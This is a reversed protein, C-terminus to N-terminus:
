RIVVRRSEDSSVAIYHGRSLPILTTGGPATGSWVCTGDILYIDLPMTESPNEVVLCCGDASPRANWMGTADPIDLSAQMPIIEIDDLAVRAGDTKTFRLMVNGDLNLTATTPTWVTQPAVTACDTWSAGDDLSYAMVVHAPENDWLRTHFTVSAIGGGLPSHMSATGGEASNFRVGQRGTRVERTDDFVGADNFDWRAADGEIDAGSYGFNVDKEFSEVIADIGKVVGEASLDDNFCDSATATVSTRYVGATAGNLRLYIQGDDEGLTIARSWETKDRSVEFPATVSVNIDSDVNYADIFITVSESPVGPTTSFVLDNGPELYLEPTLSRTTVSVTNSTQSGDTLWYRYTTAPELGSVTHSEDAARVTAPYGATESSAGAQAVHLQYTASSSGSVNVWTAEFGSSTVNVAQGAALGELVSATVTVMSRATGSSLTLTATRSGASTANLSVTVSTGATVQAATLTAPSVSFGSGAISVATNQSFGTGRVTVTATRTHGAVATGMDIVSGNAPSTFVPDPVPQQGGDGWGTSSLSGWIHDAMDPNDIFPNRNHQRAYVAENRKREKDSVPDERHWKMLLERAWQTFVPFSNGALMDSNWTSIRSNYCAAMYFYSRAFDGKYEDDPEFVTGSYGPFTSKGLRGLPKVSGSSAVQEGGACEGYPFNSRQGNVKGDTPYIHFGDSYMPSADNFWSKPLSHERNYCDGVRSYNGCQEAGVRWRKTSYMDWIKGNDDVDSTAYLDWLGSYGVNTHDGIVSQLERLLSAGSKGKCSDYYGSPAAASVSSAVGILAGWFLIRIKM